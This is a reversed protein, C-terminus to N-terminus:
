EKERRRAEQEEAFIKEVADTLDQESKYAGGNNIKLMARLDERRKREALTEQV